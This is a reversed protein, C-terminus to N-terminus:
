QPYAHEAYGAAAAYTHYTTLVLNIYDTNYETCSKTSGYSAYNGLAMLTYQEETCGPFQKVVQARNDALGLAGMETNIAPNFVSTSWASSGEDTALNPHGDPLLCPKSFEGGCAPVVQMLGYCGSEEATWGAPTGCPLNPCAVAKKDFRSEHYIIAKFIMPDPEHYKAAATLIECDFADVSVGTQEATLGTKLPNAECSLDQPPPADTGCGQLALAFAGILIRDLM